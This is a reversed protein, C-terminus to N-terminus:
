VGSPSRIVSGLVGITVDAWTRRYLMLNRHGYELLRAVDDSAHLVASYHVRATAYGLALPPNQPNFGEPSGSLIKKM